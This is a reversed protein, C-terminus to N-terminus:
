CPDVSLLSRTWLTTSSVSTYYMEQIVVLQTALSALTLSGKKKKKPVDIQQANNNAEKKKCGILMVRSMVVSRLLFFM